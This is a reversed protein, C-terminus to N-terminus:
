LQKNIMVSDPSNETVKGKRSYLKGKTYPLVAGIISQLLLSVNRLFHNLGNSTSRVRIIEMKLQTNLQVIENKDKSELSSFVKQVSEKEPIGLVQKLERVCTHRKQEIKDIKAATQNLGKIEQELKVWNRDMVSSKLNEVLGNFESFLGIEKNLCDKLENKRDM